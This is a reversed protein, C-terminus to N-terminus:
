SGAGQEPNIKKPSAKQNVRRLYDEARGIVFVFENGRITQQESSPPYINLFELERVAYRQRPGVIRM